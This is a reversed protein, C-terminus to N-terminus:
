KQIKVEVTKILYGNEDHISTKGDPKVLMILGKSLFIQENEKLQYFLEGDKDYYYKTPMKGPLSKSVQYINQMKEIEIESGDNAEILIKGKQNVLGQDHNKTNFISLGSDTFKRFTYIEKTQSETESFVKKGSSNIIAPFSDEGLKQISFLGNGLYFPAREYSDPFKKVVEFKESMLGYKEDHLKGIRVLITDDKLFGDVVSVGEETEDAVVTVVEGAENIVLDDGYSTALALGKESFSSIHKFLLPEKEEYIVKGEQNILGYKGEETKYIAASRQEYPFIETIEMKKAEEPSFILGKKDHVVGYGGDIKVVALATEIGEKELYDFSEIGKLLMKGENNMLGETDDKFHVYAFNDNRFIFESINDPMDKAEKVLTGDSLILGYKKLKPDEYRGYKSNEFTRNHIRLEPNEPFIQYSDTNFYFVDHMTTTYQLLTSNSFADIEKIREKEGDMLVTGDVDMLGMFNNSMYIIPREAISKEAKKILKEKNGSQEAEEKSTCGSVFISLFLVIGVVLSKKKM